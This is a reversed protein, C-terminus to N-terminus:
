YTTKGDGPRFCKNMELEDKHFNRSGINFLYMCYKCIM